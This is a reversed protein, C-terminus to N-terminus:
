PEHCSEETEASKGDGSNLIKIPVTLLTTGSADNVIELGGNFIVKRRRLNEGVYFTHHVSISDGPKLTREVTKTELNFNRTHGNEWHIALGEPVGVMRLRVRVPGGANTFGLTGGVAHPSILRHLAGDNGYKLIVPRAQARPFKYFQHYGEGRGVDRHYAGLVLPIALGVLCVLLYRVLARGSKM